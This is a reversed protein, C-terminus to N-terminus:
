VGSSNSKDSYNGGQVQRFQAGSSNTRKIEPHAVEIIGVEFLKSM